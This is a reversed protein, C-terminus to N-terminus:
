PSRTSASPRRSTRSTTEPRRRPTVGDRFKKWLVGDGRPRAREVARLRRRGKHCPAQSLAQLLRVNTTTRRAPRAAAPLAARTTGQAAGGAPRRPPERGQRPVVADDHTRAQRTAASREQYTEAKPSGAHTRAKDEQPAVRETFRQPGRSAQPPQRKRHYTAVCRTKGSLASPSRSPKRTPKRRSRSREIGSMSTHPAMPARLSSGQAKSKRHPYKSDCLQLSAVRPAGLVAEGTHCTAEVPRRGLWSLLACRTM